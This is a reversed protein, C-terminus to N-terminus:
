WFMVAIIRDIELEIVRCVNPGKRGSSRIPAIHQKGKYLAFRPQSIEVVYKRRLSVADSMISPESVRAKVVAFSEFGVVLKPLQADTSEDITPPASLTAAVDQLLFILVHPFDKLIIYIRSLSYSTRATSSM